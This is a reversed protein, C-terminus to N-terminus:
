LAGCRCVRSGYRAECRRTDQPGVDCDLSRWAQECVGGISTCFDACHDPLLGGGGGLLVLFDCSSATTIQDSCVRASSRDSCRVSTICRGQDDCRGRGSQCPEGVRISLRPEEEGRCGELRVCENADALSIELLSSQFHCYEKPTEFCAGVERCSRSGNRYRSRICMVRGDADQERDFTQYSACDITPCREDKEALAGSMGNACVECLGLPEGEACWIEETNADQPRGFDMVERGTRSMGDRRVDIPANETTWPNEIDRSRDALGADPSCGRPRDFCDFTSFDHCGGAITSLYFLAGLSTPSLKTM